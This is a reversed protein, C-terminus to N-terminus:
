NKPLEILVIDSNQRSRDFVIEKGDPTIDFTKLSGHDGLHTLARTTKRSLDLLWFDLSQGRPLYVLGTGNPLFRHAGGLRAKVDPLDVPTGDPRVGLLQVQGGVVPGGYIILTGDPSWVPNAVKGSVLRVPGGGDVPIKFLGSGQADAGAAVIWAGDPSWDASGQGGSGQITISGALTRASTGDASMIAMRRQGDQRTIIVV